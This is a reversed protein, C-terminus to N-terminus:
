TKLILTVLDEGCVQPDTLHPHIGVEGPLLLIVVSQIRDPDGAAVDPSWVNDQIVPPKILQEVITEM